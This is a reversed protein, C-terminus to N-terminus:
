RCSSPRRRERRASRAVALAPGVSPSTLPAAQVRARCAPCLPRPRPAARRARVKIEQIQSELGGIDAYSELPAKDVKMVSVMPDVDDALLGVVSLGKNHMLISCGPEIQDKDVFTCINVYYEPGVSSSVIAHNDDIMEELTGVGMPTGRLEEVKAREEQTKEEAPRLREQNQIFEEEMLLYDKVRELKLLKLKCKTHPVIVPLKSEQIGSAKKKKKKGIRSPAPQEDKQAKAEENNGPLGSQNQGM